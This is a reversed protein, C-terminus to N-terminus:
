ANEAIKYYDYGREPLQSHVYDRTSYLSKTEEYNFAEQASAAASWFVITATATAFFNRIMKKKM